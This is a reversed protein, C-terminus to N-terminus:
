MFEELSSKGDEMAKLSSALKKLDSELVSVLSKRYIAAAPHITLFYKQGAKEVIKGRNATISGGGLLSSYATRGLICIVKPQILDIQRELYPRCAVAEDEEPVRNSPPRCKVVNTIFVQSREIGAKQLLQDLIKGAAGVFPRGKEDESRGPAEGIFMVKASLQGEGPVANKRTRSLKCLPCGKVEAAVKELSDELPKALNSVSFALEKYM